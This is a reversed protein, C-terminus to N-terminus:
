SMKRGFVRKGERTADEVWGWFPLTTGNGADLAWENMPRLPDPLKEPVAPTGFEGNESFFVLRSDHGSQPLLGTLFDDWTGVDFDINPRNDHFDLLMITLAILTPPATQLIAYCFLDPSACGQFTVHILSTFQRLNLHEITWSHEEQTLHQWYTLNLHTIHNAWAPLTEKYDLLAALHRINIDLVQLSTLEHIAENLNPEFHDDLWCSLHTVDSSLAIISAAEKSTPSGTWPFFLHRVLKRSALFKSQLLTHILRPLYTASGNSPTEVLITRYLYSGICEHALHNITAYSALERRSDVIAVLQAYIKEWLESPLRSM